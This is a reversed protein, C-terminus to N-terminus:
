RLFRVSQLIQTLSEDVDNHQARTLTKMPPDFVGADVGSQTLRLEYCEKSHFARYLNISQWHSMGTGATIGHVFLVGDINEQPNQASIMFDPEGERPFPTVCVDARMAEDAPEHYNAEREAEVQRVQFSAAEFNTGEFRGAPYVACAIADEECAPAYSRNCPRMNGATCIQFDRPYSFSFGGDASKFIALHGLPRRQSHTPLALVAAMAIM